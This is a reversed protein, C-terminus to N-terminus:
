VNLYQHDLLEFFVGEVGLINNIDEGEESKKTKMVMKTLIQFNM